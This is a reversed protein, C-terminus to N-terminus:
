AHERKEPPLGPQNINFCYADDTRARIAHRRGIPFEVFSGTGVVVSKGADDYVDFEGRCVFSGHQFFDHKHMTIEDGAKLFHYGTFVQKSGDPWSFYGYHPVPIAM